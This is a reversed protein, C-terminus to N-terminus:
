IKGLFFFSDSLVWTRFDQSSVSLSRVSTASLLPSRPPLLISSLSVSINQPSNTLTTSEIIAATAYLRKTPPASCRPKKKIASTAGSRWGYISQSLYLSLKSFIIPSFIHSKTILKTILLFSFLIFYYYM